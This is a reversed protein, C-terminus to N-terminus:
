RAGGIRRDRGALNLVQCMEMMRSVVREAPVLDLGGGGPTPSTMAKALEAPTRNSTVIIPLGAEYRHNVISYLQEIVWPTPRQAGLDDIVLLQRDYVNSPFRHRQGKEYSQRIRELMTSANWWAVSGGFSDFHALVACAAQHTKGVGTGGALYWGHTGNWERLPLLLQSDPDVKHYLPPISRMLQRRIADLRQQEIEAMLEAQRTEDDIPKWVGLRVKEAHEAKLRSILPGNKTPVALVDGAVPPEQSSTSTSPPSPPITRM